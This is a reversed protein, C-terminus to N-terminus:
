CARYIGGSQAPLDCLYGGNSLQLALDDGGANRCQAIIAGGFTSSAKGDCPTGGGVQVCDFERGQYIKRAQDRVIAELDRPKKYAVGCLLIKRGGIRLDDMTHIDLKGSFVIAETATQADRPPGLPKQGALMYLIFTAFGLAALALLAGKKISM